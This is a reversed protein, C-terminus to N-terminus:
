FPILNIYRRGNIHNELFVHGYQYLDVAENGLQEMWIFVDTADWESLRMKNLRKVINMKREKQFLRFEREQLEKEKSSLSREVKKLREITMEIEFKWDLKKELFINTAEALEDNVCM